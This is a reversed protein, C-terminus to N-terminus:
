IYYWCMRVANHVGVRIIYTHLLTSTHTHTNQVRSRYLYRRQVRPATYVFHTNKKKFFQKKGGEILEVHARSHARRFRRPGPSFPSLKHFYSFQPSSARSVFLLLLLLIM